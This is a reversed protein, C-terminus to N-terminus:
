SVSVCRYRISLKRLIKLSREPVLLVGRESTGIVTGATFIAHLGRLEDEPAFTIAKADLQQGEPPLSSAIREVAQATEWAIKAKDDAFTLKGGEAIHSEAETKNSINSPQSYHERIESEGGTGSIYIVYPIIGSYDFLRNFEQIFFHQTVESQWPQYIAIWGVPEEDEYVTSVTTQVQLLFDLPQDEQPHKIKLTYQWVHSLENPDADDYIERLEPDAIMAKALSCTSLEPFAEAFKKLVQSKRLLFIRNHRKPIRFLNRAIIELVNVGLFNVVDPTNDPRIGGWLWFALLNAATLTGEKNMLWVPHHERLRTSADEITILPHARAIDEIVEAQTM